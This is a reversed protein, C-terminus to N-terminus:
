TKMNLFKGDMSLLYYEFKIDPYIKSIQNQFLENIRHHSNTECEENSVCEDGFMEKAMLCDRHNIVIIKHIKHNTITIKLNDLFTQKWNNYSDGTVALTGGAISFLSYKHELNKEKLFIPIFKQCRRDICTVVMAEYKVSM